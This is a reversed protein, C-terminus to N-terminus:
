KKEKIKIIKQRWVSRRRSRQLCMQAENHNRCWTVVSWTGLFKVAVAHTCGTIYTHLAPNTIESPM